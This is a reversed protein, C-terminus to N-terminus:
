KAGKKKKSKQGSEARIRELLESAPEDNPDQAVLRGAFAEKLISQRLATSRTLTHQCLKEYYSLASLASEVESSIVQQEFFSPIPLLLKEFNSKNIIPLTTASANEWIQNQFGTEIIALYLFHSLVINPEPPIAHIQQNFAANSFQSIGTKGTTAGIGTVLVTGRPVVRAHQAGLDTLFERAESINAGQNLDTPKLFPITGGYYQNNNQKSPTTGTIVQCIQGVSAWIWSKPLKPLNSTDPPAPEKYKGRGTWNQRRAKLIRKLLDHGSELKNKNKTRWDATLKGTVAAKLISQRYQTLLTQVKQLSAEGADLEAFLTEIKEAIRQQENLPPLSFKKKFTDKVKVFPQASGGRIWFNEDNVKYWLFDRDIIGEDPWIIHTNAIASWKGEARFCKGCRAGVASIIIARGEHAYSQCWVDQGSASFGPFLGVQRVPSQKGKILKSNGSNHALLLNLPTRIWGEPLASTGIGTVGM